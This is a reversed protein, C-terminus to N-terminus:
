TPLLKILIVKGSEDTLSYLDPTVDNSIALFILLLRAFFIRTAEKLPSCTSKDRLSVQSPEILNKGILEVTTQGIYVAMM